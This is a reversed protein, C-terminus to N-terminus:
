VTTTLLLARPAPVVKAPKAIDKMLAPGNVMNFGGGITGVIVKRRRVGWVFAGLEAKAAQTQLEVLRALLHDDDIRDPTGLEALDVGVMSAGSRAAALANAVGLQSRMMVDRCLPRLVQIANAIDDASSRDPIGFLEVVLRAKRVEATVDAMPALLEMRLPSHLTAWHIPLVVVAGQNAAESQRFGKMAAGIVFRDLAQATAGGDTYAQSGELPPEDRRDFRQVYARYAGIVEGDASWTPRWMMSLRTDPPLPRDGDLLVDTAAQDVKLVKWEPAPRATGGEIPVYGSPATLPGAKVPAVKRASKPAPPSPQLSARPPEPKKPPAPPSPQLHRRLPQAPTETLRQKMWSRLNDEAEPAEEQNLIARMEGVITNIAWLNLRGDATLAEDLSIEAALALPREMGLVKDGVLRTGLEKAITLARRRGEESPCTRFILVFMDEGHRGFVNGPGLHLQIVGEAIMMVKDSVRYWKDGVAERFEILSIVQLKTRHRGEEDQAMQDLALRFTDDILDQRPVGTPGPKVAPEADNRRGAVLSALRSLLGTRPRIRSM